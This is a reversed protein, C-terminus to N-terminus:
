AREERTLRLFASELTPERRDGGAAGAMATLGAPTDVAVIRGAKLLAIRSCLREAEELYHTTMFVTRGAAALQRIIVWLEQRVDPDLGVTPEDLLLLQPGGLLARAILLRRAMGGSLVGVQKGRMEGLNFEEIVRELRQRPKALGYLRAYVLLAEQVTFERELNNEQPVLAILHKLETREGSADRGYLRLEGSDPRSLGAVLKMLTTKGAGNPGLLGFIEGKGVTLSIDKLVQQRRYQKCLRHLYLAADPEGPCAATM